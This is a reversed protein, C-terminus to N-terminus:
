GPNLLLKLIFMVKCVGENCNGNGDGCVKGNSLNEVTGNIKFPECLGTDSNKCCQKCQSVICPKHLLIYNSQIIYISYLRNYTRIIFTHVLLLVFHFTLQITHSCPVPLNGPTVRLAIM